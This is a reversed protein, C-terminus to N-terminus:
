SRRVPTPAADAASAAAAAAATARQEKEWAKRRKIGNTVDKETYEKDDCQEGEAKEFTILYKGRSTRDGLTTGNFYGYGPDAIRVKTGTSYATELLEATAKASQAKRSRKAIAKM